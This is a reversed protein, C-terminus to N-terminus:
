QTILSLTAVILTALGIFLGIYVIRNNSVGNKYDVYKQRAEFNMTYIHNDKENGDIYKPTKPNKSDEHIIGYTDWDFFNNHFWHYLYDDKFNLKQNKLHHKLQNYSIGNESNDYGFKLCAIYINKKM